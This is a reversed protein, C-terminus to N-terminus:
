CFVNHILSEFANKIKKNIIKIKKFPSGKKNIMNGDQEKRVEALEDSVAPQSEFGGM